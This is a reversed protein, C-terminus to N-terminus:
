GIEVQAFTSSRPTASSSPQISQKDDKAYPQELLVV